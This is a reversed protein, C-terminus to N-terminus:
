NVTLDVTLRFEFAYTGDAWEKGMFHILGTYHGPPLDPNESRKFFFKASDPSKGSQCRTADNMLFIGCANSRSGKVYLTYQKGTGDTLVIPTSVDSKQDYSVKWILSTPGTTPAITVYGMEPYGYIPASKYTSEDSTIYWADYLTGIFNVEKNKKSSANISATVEALGNTNGSLTVVSKGQSDTQPATASLKNISATWNVTANPVPNDNADQIQATYTAKDGGNSLVTTKDVSLSTVVATKADGIFAVKAADLTMAPSALSATMVMDSAKLTTANVTAVGSADSNSSTVSLKANADSSQWGVAVEPLLNDNADKVLVNWTVQEVGDAVAQTKDSQINSLKATTVDGIYEVNIRKESNNIGAGLQTVMAKTTTFTMTATGTADTLSTDGPTFVGASNDSGWHVLADPVPNGQADQIVATLTVSDKGAVLGTTRDATLSVVQETATDAAFRITQTTQSPTADVWAVGKYAIANQSRLQVTATGTADTLSTPSSLTFSPNPDTTTADWNTTVQNVPNGYSDLVTAILTVADSNNAIASYKDAKVVDVHASKADAVINLTLSKQSSNVSSAQVLTAQALTSSFTVTAIGDPGTTSRAESFQGSANDSTWNVIVDQVPHNNVDVVEASLTVTDGATIDGTKDATLKVLQATSPDATFTVTSTVSSGNISMTVTYDGTGASTLSVVAEGQANTQSTTDSLVGNGPSVSWDVDVKDLVNGHSDTVNGTFTISDLGNALATDKSFKLDVATATKIDGIFTVVPADYAASSGVTASVNVKGAKTTKATISAKGNADTTTTAASLQTGAPTVQWDVATNALTNGNADSVTATYTVIDVGDAVAQTKDTQIDKIQATTADATFTLPVSTQAAGTASRASVTIQGAQTATLTMTANGQKDSTSSPANLTGKGSAVEWDVTANSVPHNNADVVHAVLTIADSNNAVAQTKDEKLSQVTATAADAIFDLAPSTRTQGNVTANVTINEVATNKVTISAEGQANTQVKESSLTATGSSTDWVVDVGSVPNDNADKVLLTLTTSDKGNALLTTKSADINGPTATTADAVFSVDPANRATGSGASASVSVTGAQTTKATMTAKGNADTTSTTGALQTQSPVAKWTVTTNTLPNGNADQVTATYTVKDQGNAVAQQKDVTVDTVGATVSDADFTLTGSLQEAGTTSRAAVKVQGAQTATLTVVANGQADSTSQPASLTGNGSAVRWEVTAGTVAHNNADVVHATLTIRDNNNAIAQTKDETISAVAATSADAMFTLAPSPQTQGNFVANVVVNEVATDSVTISAEGQKDTQVSSASLAATASTTNWTVDMDPVPNDNADVLRTTLTASDKGDALLTTSSANVARLTATSRDATFHAVPASVEDGSVAQAFVSVDGALTTTVTATAKGSADTQSTATITTQGPSARWNVPSNVLPNGAADLVTATYIVSDSGNATAQTKNATIDTITASTADAIFTLPNSTKATGSATSAEVVVQGAKTSTLTILANGKSDSVTQADSLTAVGQKVAWNVTSNAVAHGSADSVHATLTIRDSNNATAQNKDEQITAVNATASDSTFAISESTQTQKGVSASVTLMEVDSSTVSVTAEGNDNTQSKSASLHATQSSTVWSIEVGKLPNNNADLLTTKLTAADQGNALVSNKDVTLPSLIATSIDVVFTLLESKVPTSNAPTAASVVVKGTKPSKLTLVAIGEANTASSKDAVHIQGDESEVSWQVSVNELPHNSADKVLASLTVSDQNNAKILTKDQDVKVVKASAADATFSLPDSSISAGNEIQATVTTNLVETSSVTVSAAGEANTVSTASSLLAKDNDTTWHLTINSAPTNDKKVVHTTLTITDSGNALASQKSTDLSTFTLDKILSVLTITTTALKQTGNLLPQILVDGPMTGSTFTSTYVGASKETWSSIKEKVDPTASNGSKVSSQRVLEASLDGALGTVQQGSVSAITTTLTATSVGDAPLSTADVSSESVFQAEDFGDVVVSMYSNDSHNGQNDWATASVVWANNEKGGQQYPPLTITWGNGVKDIKGGRKVLADDQWTLHDVPYKSKVKINVPLVQGETGEIRSPLSLSILEKKRYDLIINNNRNVLAMRSGLLSRQQKVQNPDMQDKLPVGAAWNLALNIQTDKQDEKGFKQDLGVTLLPFPTYNLGATLAYPDKQRDDEDDGFLAVNDGYYKEWTLKAGFQPWSPLYGEARIDYGDAVREQYDEYERSDMWGSLRKYGNASIKLNDWGLEGGVGLRQHANHSIQRDYFLNVGWMWTDSFHRYGVGLNIINQDDHRRGGLQSFLLNQKKDDYLPFLLDLDASDLSFEDDVSVNIAATGFQQLWQQIEATAMSTGANIMTSTLADASDDQSLMNGATTALQALSQETPTAQTSPTASLTQETEASASFSFMWPNISTFFLYITAQFFAVVRRISPRM